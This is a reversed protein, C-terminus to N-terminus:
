LMCANTHNNRGSCQVSDDMESLELELLAGHKYSWEDMGTMM